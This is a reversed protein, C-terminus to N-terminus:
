FFQTFYSKNVENGSSCVSSHLPLSKGLDSSGPSMGPRESEM